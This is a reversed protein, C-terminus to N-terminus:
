PDAFLQFLEDIRTPVCRDGATVFAVVVRVVSRRRTGRLTRRRGSQNEKRARLLKPLPASARRRRGFRRWDRGDRWGSRQM